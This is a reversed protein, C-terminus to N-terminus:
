FLVIYERIFLVIQTVEKAQSRAHLGINLIGQVYICTHFAMYVYFYLSFIQSSELQLTLFSALYQLSLIHM